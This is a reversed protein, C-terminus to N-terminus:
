NPGFSLLRKGGTKDAVETELQDFVDSSPKVRGADADALRRAISADLTALKAEREQDADAPM